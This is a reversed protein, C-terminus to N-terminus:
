PNGLATRYRVLALQFNQLAELRAAALELRQERARLVSLLDGQGNRWAQESRETQEDAQPLLTQETERALKAWELMEARAAEAELRINQDLATVEQRRRKAKAEAAEINGENKDWFPLPISFRVGVIGENGSTGIDEAGVYFGARVDGYRKTREIEAQQEAAVVALRAIEAAPRGIQDVGDPLRLPPLSGSVHVTEGPPIGLLPKLVGIAQQETAALQRSQTLFRAAELRAQGADLSSAEGREAIESIFNALEGALNAQEALLKERERITLVQILAQSAEGVLRNTIERIEAQAAQVQTAGLDKELHLRNTVPFKQMLGVEIRGFDFGADHEAESELEPNELRGSQRLKGLAEDIRFRAAKLNPNDRRVREGINSLTVITGPQAQVAVPTCALTGAFFINCYWKM